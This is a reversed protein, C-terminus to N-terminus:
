HGRCQKSRFWYSIASRGGMVSTKSLRLLIDGGPVRVFTVAQLLIKEVTAKKM